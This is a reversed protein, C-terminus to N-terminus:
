KPNWFIKEQFNEVHFLSLKEENAVSM